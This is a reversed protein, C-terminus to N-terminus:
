PCAIPTANNVTITGFSPASSQPDDADNDTITARVCASSSPVSAGGVWSVQLSNSSTGLGVSTVIPQAGQGAINANKFDIVQAAVQSGAPPTVENAPGVSSSTIWNTLVSSGNVAPTNVNRTTVTTLRPPDNVAKLTLSVVSAASASAGNRAVLSVQTPTGAADSLANYADAPVSLRLTRASGSGALVSATVGQANIVSPTDFSVAGVISAPGVTFPVDITFAQSRATALDDEFRSISQTLGTLTPATAAVTITFSQTASTASGGGDDAATVFVTATGSVTNNLTYILQANSPCSIAGLLTVTGGDGPIVGFIADGSTSVAVNSLCQGTENTGLNLGVLLPSITRIGSGNPPAPFSINAPPAFTPPDNVATVQLTFGIANTSSIGDFVSLTIIAFGSADPKPTLRVTRNTGSGGLVMGSADILGPNSSVVSVDLTGTNDADNVTFALNGTAGDEPIVQNGPQTITPAINTVVTIPASVAANDTRTVEGESPRSFAAAQVRFTAGTTPATTNSLTRTATLTLVSGRPMSAATQEMYGIGNAESCSAGGSGVCTWTGTNLGPIASGTVPRTFFDRVQVEDAPATGTNQVRVTYTVVDGARASSPALVTTVLGVGVPGTIDEFGDYFITEALVAKGVVAKEIEVTGPQTAPLVGGPFVYCQLAPKASLNMLYKNADVDGAPAFRLRVGGNENSALPALGRFGAAKQIVDNPDRLLLRVNGTPEAPTEDFDACLVPDAVRVQLLSGAAVALYSLSQGSLGSGNPKLRVSSSDNIKLRVKNNDQAHAACALVLAASAFTVQTLVRASLSRMTRPTTLNTFSNFISSMFQIGKFNIL